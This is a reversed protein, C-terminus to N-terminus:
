FGEPSLQFSRPRRSRPSAGKQPDVFGDREAIKRGIERARRYREGLYQKMDPRSDMFAGMVQRRYASLTGNPHVTFRSQRFDYTTLVFPKAKLKGPATVELRQVELLVCRCDCKPDLCYMDVVLYAQEEHSFELVEEPGPVLDYYPIVIGREFTQFEWPSRRADEKASRYFQRAQEWFASGLRNRLEQLLVGSDAPTEGRIFPARQDLPIVVTLREATEKGCLDLLVEQCDCEPNPCCRTEVSFQDLAQAQASEASLFYACLQIGSAGPDTEQQDPTM